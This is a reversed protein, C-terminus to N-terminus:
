KYRYPMMNEAEFFTHEHIYIIEAYVAAYVIYYM